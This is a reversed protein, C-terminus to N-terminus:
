KILQVKKYRYFIVVAVTIYILIGMGSTEIGYDGGTILLSPTNIKYSLMSNEVVPNNQLSVLTNQQNFCLLDWLVHVIISCWISGSYVRIMSFMIGVSTGALMLMLFSTMNLQGNFVHIFAFFLSPIVCAWLLGLKKNIFNFMFGRFIIEECVGAPIALGFLAFSVLLLKSTSHNEMWQGKTSLIIFSNLLLPLIVGVIVWKVAEKSYPSKGFTFSQKLVFNYFLRTLIVVFLIYFFGFVVYSLYDPVPIVKQLLAGGMESITLIVAGIVCIVLSEIASRVNKM